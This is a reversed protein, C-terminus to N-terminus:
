VGVINLLWVDEARTITVPIKLKRQFHEVKCYYAIFQILETKNDGDSLFKALNHSKLMAQDVGGIIIKEKIRGVGHTDRVTNLAFPLVKKDPM